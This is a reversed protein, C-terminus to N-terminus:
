LKRAVFGKSKRFEEFKRTYEYADGFVANAAKYFKPEYQQILALEEEFRKGLPCGACGTRKMGWVEYCDSYTLGYHQKYIEKDEDTLWFIPRFEDIQDGETFCTKYVTSRVGGEAKRVGVCDLDCGSASKFKHAPKKKAYTCCAASIKFDPPNELMFEKLWKVYAINYSSERGSSAKPPNGNCWWLLGQKCNPYKEFLTEFPEDVWDFGHKQLRSIMDSVFKSWFPQGDEKASVPIPKIPNIRQITIGYKEELEDLHRKTADYELGTNFFVYEVKGDKDVRHILDLMTDSDAGGSVSCIVKRHTELKANAVLFADQIEKKM